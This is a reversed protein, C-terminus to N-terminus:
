RWVGGAAVRFGLDFHDYPEQYVYGRGGVRPPMEYLGDPGMVDWDWPARFSGGRLVKCRGKSRFREIPDILSFYNAFASPGVPDKSPSSEYYDEDYWDNVAEIVNGAMDHLGYGNPAFSGVEVPGSTWTLNLRVADDDREDGWPYLKGELGGRAAKEWQAETPLHYDKGTRDALWKCYAAMDTWSVMIVPHRPYKEFYGEWRPDAEAFDPDRPYPRDTADCFRKYEENTVEYKAIAYESLHVEHVPVSTLAIRSIERGRSRAERDTDDLRDTPLNTDDGMRFAGAPITVMEPEIPEIDPRVEKGYSVPNQTSYLAIAGIVLIVVVVIAPISFKKGGM